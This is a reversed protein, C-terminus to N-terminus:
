DALTTLSRERVGLESDHRGGRRRQLCRRMRQREPIGPSVGAGLARADRRRTVDGGRHPTRSLYGAFFVDQLCTGSAGDCEYRYVPGGGVLDNLPVPSVAVTFPGDPLLDLRVLLGDVCGGRDTCNVGLPSDCASPAPVLLVAILSVRLLARRALSRTVIPDKALTTVGLVRHTSREDRTNPQVSLWREIWSSCGRAWRLRRAIRRRTM